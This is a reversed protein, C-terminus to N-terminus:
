QRPPLTDLTQLRPSFADYTAFRECIVSDQACTTDMLAKAERPSPSAFWMTGQKPHYYTAIVSGTRTANEASASQTVKCAIGTDRKCM